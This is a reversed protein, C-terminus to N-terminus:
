RPTTCPPTTWPPTTWPPTTWPFPRRPSPSARPSHPNRRGIAQAATYASRSGRLLHPQPRVATLAALTARGEASREAIRATLRREEYRQWTFGDDETCGRCPVVAGRRGLVEGSVSM